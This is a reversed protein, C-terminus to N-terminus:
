GFNSKIVYHLIAEPVFGPLRYEFQPVSLTKFDAKEVQPYIDYPM